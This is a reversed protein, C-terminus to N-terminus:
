GLLSIKVMYIRRNNINDFILFLNNSINYFIVLNSRLGTLIRSGPMNM